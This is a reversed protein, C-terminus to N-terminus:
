EGDDGGVGDLHGVLLDGDLRFLEHASVDLDGVEGEVGDGELGCSGPRPSWLGCLDSVVGAGYDLSVSHDDGCHGAVLVQGRFELCLHFCALGGSFFPLSFSAASEVGRRVAISALISFSSSSSSSSPILLKRSRERGVGGDWVRIGRRELGVGPLTGVDEAAPRDVGLGLGLAELGHQPARVLEGEGDVLEPGHEHEQCRGRGLKGLDLLEKFVLQGMLVAKGDAELEGEVADEFGFGGVLGETENVGTIGVHKCGHRNRGVIDIDFAKAVVVWSTTTTIATIIATTIPAATITITDRGTGDVRCRSAIIM